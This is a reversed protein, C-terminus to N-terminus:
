KTHCKVVNENEGRIASTLDTESHQLEDCMRCSVHKTHLHLQLKAPVTFGNGLNQRCLVCQADPARSDCVCAFGLQVYIM